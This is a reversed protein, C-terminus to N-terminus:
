VKEEEEGIWLHGPLVMDMTQVSINGSQSISETMSKPNVLCLTPNKGYKTRYYEAARTIKAALATKPDNDFWMMGYNM